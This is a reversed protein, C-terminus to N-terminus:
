ARPKAGVGVFFEKVLENLSNPNSQLLYFLVGLLLLGMICAVIVGGYEEIIEKMSGDEGEGTGFKPM